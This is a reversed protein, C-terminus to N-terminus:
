HCTVAVGTPAPPMPLRSQARDLCERVGDAVSQAHLASLMTLHDGPVDKIDVGGNAVEGWRFDGADAHAASRFLTVRGDFPKLRYDQFALYNAETVDRLARPLPQGIGVFWKYAFQWLRSRVRRKLTRIKRRVHKLKKLDHQRLVDGLHFALQRVASGNHSEGTLQNANHGNGGLRGTDLIALLGVEQSQERLQRAMEFAVFGGFSMGAIYYPGDPQFARIESLYHAAMQEINELRGNGDLGRSQLGYVPQDPGIMRALNRYTLVNGGVGHVCFLPPRSGGPQIPVLSEWRPKWGDRRLVDALQEITPAEFLTSLPLECNFTEQIQSFLSLALISHGGLDFFNDRIGIPQVKIGTGM